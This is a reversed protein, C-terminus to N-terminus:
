SIIGLDKLNSRQKEAWSEAGEPLEEPTFIYPTGCDRCCASGVALPIGCGPCVTELLEGCYACHKGGCTHEARPMALLRGNVAYPTNAPCDFVPCYSASAAGTSIIAESEPAFSLVDVDLIGAITEIKAWSLADEKGREMMSVASQKCEAQHALASQTMGKARRADSLIRYLPSNGATTM